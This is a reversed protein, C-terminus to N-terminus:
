IYLLKPNAYFDGCVKRVFNKQFTRILHVSCLFIECQPFVFKGSKIFGIEADCHFVSIKLETEFKVHLIFPNLRTGNETTLNDLYPVVLRNM